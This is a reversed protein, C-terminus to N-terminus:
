FAAGNFQVFVILLRQRTENLGHLLFVAPLAEALQGLYFLDEVIRMEAAKADQFGV